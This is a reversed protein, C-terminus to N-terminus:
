QTLPNGALVKDGARIWRYVQAGAPRKFQKFLGPDDRKQLTLETVGAADCSLVRAFGKYVRPEGLVRSLGSASEQASGPARRELALFSYPLSRLDIGARQGFRVWNSDSFIEPPPAAFHHCWHRANDPALLDCVAQHTCPAIVHFRNRLQERVEILARSVEPTGPEVWIIVEARAALSRLALLERAPLETLVHSIVLVGVPEDSALFGPTVQEVRIGPFDHRAADTAFDVALGSHDWVRLVAIRDRGLWRAVRRGAVGGGCGWDLVATARPKWGRLALEQLVADWKWGIREGYTFDYSALDAPSTWYPGQAAGGSLFLGRLRELAAWDLQEWTM